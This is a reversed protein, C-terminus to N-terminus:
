NGGELAAIRAELSDLRASASAVLQLLSTDTADDIQENAEIADLRSILNLIRDKVNVEYATGADFRVNGADINGTFTASGNANLAINPADPLTGGILVNQSSDIYLADISTSAANTTLLRFFGAGDTTNETGAELYAGTLRTTSTSPKAGLMLRSHSNVGVTENWLALVGEGGVLARGASKGLTSTPWATTGASLSGQFEASGDANLQINDANTATGIHVNDGDNAPSLTTGSRTWTNPPTISSSAHVAFWWNADALGFSNDRISVTFGGTSLTGTVGINNATSGLTVAYNANPMANDFVVSYQGQATRSSSANLGGNLTGDSAVSGWADAGVGTIGGGSSGTVNKTGLAIVAPSMVYFPIIDGVEVSAPTNTFSSGWSTVTATFRILGSQGNVGNTPNPVDALGCAWFNGTSLDFAGAAVDRETQTVGGTLNGGAKELYPDLDPPAPLDNATIFPDSGNEGDNTLESTKTPVSPPAPLDNATIFPDSGNEGDNTLESTKTPLDQATIFANIGDAGDNTLDSTKSPLDGPEAFKGDAVKIGAASVAITDGDAQVSLSGSTTIPGGTLGNGSDVSTVTGGGLGGIDDFTVFDSTGDGDNVLDSTKEPIDPKNLIEADSGVAANWDAKVNPEAGATVGDLKTKDGPTMLGANAGVAPIEANNGATNTVTGKDLAPTYNLDVTALGTDIPEWSSGNWVLLIGLDTDYFLDGVNNGTGPRDGTGGSDASAGPAIKHVVNSDDRFYLAPSANSANIALEGIDLSGAGPARNAVVSNKLRIKAM